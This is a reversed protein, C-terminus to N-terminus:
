RLGSACASCSKFRARNQHGKGVTWLAEPPQRVEALASALAVSSNIYTVV